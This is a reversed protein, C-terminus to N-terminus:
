PPGSRRTGAAPRGSRARIPRGATRHPHGPRGPVPPTRGTSWRRVSRVSGRATVVVKALILVHTVHQQEVVDLRGFLIESGLRHRGAALPAGAIGVRELRAPTL